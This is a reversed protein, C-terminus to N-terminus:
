LKSNDTLVLDLFYCTDALSSGFVDVDYLLSCNIAM